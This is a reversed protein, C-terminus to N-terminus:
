CIVGGEQFSVAPPPPAGNGYRNAQKEPWNWDNFHLVGYLRSVVIEDTATDGIGVDPFKKKVSEYLVCCTEIFNDLAWEAAFTQETSYLSYDSM